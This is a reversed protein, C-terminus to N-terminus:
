LRTFNVLICKRVGFSNLKRLFFLRQRAKKLIEHSIINWTLDNAIYTGLLKFSGVQEVVNDYIYVPEKINKHKRRFDVILEKTKDVNLILNNEECWKVVSTIQARYASEDDNQILGILSTDDAFKVVLSNPNTAKCDHTYLSYLLPSLVCGQLTGTNLVLSHSACSGIRVVPRRELLFDLIWNSISVPLELDNILKFHLKCPVITNFASSYDIFLIRAYSMSQELHGLVEHLSLCIADEVSRNTRYAFQHSDMSPPLISKLFQLVFGEFIKM